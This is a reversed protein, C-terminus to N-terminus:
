ALDDFCYLVLVLFSVYILPVYYLTWLTWEWQQYCHLNTCVSHFVTHLKGWFSFSSSGHSEAIRSRPTYVPFFFFFLVCVCVSEYVCVCVWVSVCVCVCVSEYVCVRLCVCLCASVCVSEYVCVCVCVSETNLTNHSTRRAAPNQKVINIEDGCSSLSDRCTYLLICLFSPIHTICEEQM